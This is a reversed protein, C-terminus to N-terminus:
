ISCKEMSRKTIKSNAKTFFIMLFLNTDLGKKKTTKLNVWMIIVTQLILSLGVQYFRILKKGM